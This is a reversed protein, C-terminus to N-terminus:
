INRLHFDLVIRLTKLTYNSFNLIFISKAFLGSEYLM